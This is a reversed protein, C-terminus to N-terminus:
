VTRMKEVVKGTQFWPWLLPPRLGRVAEDERPLLLGDHTKYPLPESESFIGGKVVTDPSVFLFIEGEGSLMEELGGGVCLFGGDAFAGFGIEGTGDAFEGGVSDGFSVEFGGKVEVFLTDFKAGGEGVEEMTEGSGLEEEAFKRFGSCGDLFGEVEVGVVGGGDEELAEDCVTFFPEVLAELQDVPCDFDLGCEVAFGVSTAEFEVFVVIGLAGKLEEFLHLRGRALDVVEDELSVDGAFGSIPGAGFFAEAEGNFEGGM